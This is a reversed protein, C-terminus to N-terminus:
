EGTWAAALREGLAWVGASNFHAADKKPLDRVEVWSAGPVDRAVAVVADHVLPGGTGPNTHSDIFVVPLDPRGWDYRLAAILRTLNAEYRQAGYIYKSDRETQIYVLGALEVPRGLASAADRTVKLVRPYMYYASTTGHGVQKMDYKWQATGYEPSWAIISTGGRYVKVIVVGSGTAQRVARAFSLEVGFTSGYPQMPVIAANGTPQPAYYWAGDVAARAAPDLDAAFGQQGANSQGTIVFLLAPQEQASVAAMTLALLLAALALARM